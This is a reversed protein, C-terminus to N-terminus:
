LNYKKSSLYTEVDEKNKSFYLIEKYEFDTINTYSINKVPYIKYNTIDGINELKIFGYNLIDDQIDTDYKVYYKTCIKNSLFKIDIIQGINNLTFNEFLAKNLAIHFNNHFPTDKCIVYDGIEPIKQNDNNIMEYTKLHKM